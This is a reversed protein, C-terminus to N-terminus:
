LIISSLEDRGIARFCIPLATVCIFHKGSVFVVFRLMHGNLVPLSRTVPNIVLEAQTMQGARRASSNSLLFARSTPIETLKWAITLSM